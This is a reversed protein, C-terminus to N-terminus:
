ENILSVFRGKNTIMYQWRVVYTDGDHFQGYSTEELEFHDYELVHWVKVGLTVISQKRIFGDMDEDRYYVTKYMYLLINKYLDGLPGSFISRILSNFKLNLNM